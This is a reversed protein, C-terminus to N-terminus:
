GAIIDGGVHLGLAYISLQPPVGISSCLLSGDSIWLGKVHHHRGRSDVAARQPDDGMPVSAMPHVASLDIRGRTIPTLALRRPDEGQAVSPTPHGPVFIRQAGAALLLEGCRALGLALETRDVADPWYDIRVGLDGDPRVQGATHDHLMATLAGTHAFRLMHARHTAGMGPVLTAVGMPHGFVPVIWTRHRETEFDLWETCEFSQPIGEWAYIPEAFDGAVIVAPHLRLHQGTEGGPDPVKSRLLLAPTGTASAALCIRPADVTIPAGPRRTVPDLTVADIGTARGRAHRVRIAQCHTLITGGARVFRPAFVKLANNKADYACGIECFGSGVCGSRNHRLGGGRWGLTACADALLRNHANMRGAPIASVELLAEVQDYLAAWREPPLHTLGRERQWRALIPAPIRKCLNINHLSSGGVGMGQLVRMGRDATTRTGAAWMLRPLMQEERQTMQAPTILGGAELVVVTLGAEAALTAATLGGPGSGVVCLDARIRGAGLRSADHIM